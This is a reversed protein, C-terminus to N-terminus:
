LDLFQLLLEVNLRNIRQEWDIDLLDHAKDIRKRVTNIHAYLKEATVSYNMNNELYVKLTRLVEVNKEDQMLKRYKKLM